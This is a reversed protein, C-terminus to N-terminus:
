LYIMKLQKVELNTNEVTQLKHLRTELKNGFM